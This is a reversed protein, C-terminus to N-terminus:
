AYDKSILDVIVDGIVPHLEAKTVEISNPNSEITFDFSIKLQDPQPDVKVSPDITVIIGEYKSNLLRIGQRFTNEDLQYEVLEYSQNSEKRNFLFDLLKM